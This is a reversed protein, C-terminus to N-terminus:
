EDYGKDILEHIIKRTETEMLDNYLQHIGDIVYDESPTEIYVTSGHYGSEFAEVVCEALDSEYYYVDENICIKNPNHASIFVSYGDATSEEYIYHQCNDEWTDVITIGTEESVKKFIYDDDELSTHEKYGRKLLEKEVMEDTIKNKGMVKRILKKTKIMEQINLEM